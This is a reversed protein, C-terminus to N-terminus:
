ETNIGKKGFGAYLLWAFTGLQVDTAGREIKSIYSKKYGVRVALEEQTIGAGERMTKITSSLQGRIDFTEILTSKTYTLMPDYDLPQWPAVGPCDSMDVQIAPWHIVGHEVIASCFKAEDKLQSLYPDAQWTGKIDAEFDIMRTEGNTWLVTIKYPEVSLIRVLRPPASM